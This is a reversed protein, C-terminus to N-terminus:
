RETGLEAVCAFIQEISDVVIQEVVDRTLDDPQYRALDMPPPSAELWVLVELGRGRDIVDFSVVHGDPRLSTLFLRLAISPLPEESREIAYRHGDRTLEDGIETLVPALIDDRTRAFASLFSARDGRRGAENAAIRAGFRARINDLRAKSRDKM